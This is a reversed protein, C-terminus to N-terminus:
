FGYGLSKVCALTCDQAFAVVEVGCEPLALPARSGVGRRCVKEPQKADVLAVVSVDWAKIVNCAQGVVDSICERTVEM